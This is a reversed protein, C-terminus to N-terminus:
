AIHQTRVTATKPGKRRPAKADQRKEYRASRCIDDSEASIERGDDTRAVSQFEHVGDLSTAPHVGLRWPALVCLFSVPLTNEFSMM